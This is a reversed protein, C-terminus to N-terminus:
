ELSPRFTRSRSSRCFREPDTLESVEGSVQMDLARFLLMPSRLIQMAQRVNSQCTGYAPKYDRSWLTVGCVGSNAGCIGFRLVDALALHAKWNGPNLEIAKALDVVQDRTSRDSTLLGRNYYALDLTPKLSISKNYLRLVQAEENDFGLSQYIRRFEARYDSRSVQFGQDELVVGLANYAEALGPKLRIARALDLAVDRSLAQAADRVRHLREGNPLTCQLGAVLSRYDRNDFGSAVNPRSVYHANTCAELHHWRALARYLHLEPSPGLKMAQDALAIVAQEQGPKDLLSQIQALYDDLTRSTGTALAVTRGQRFAVYFDIPVGQNIGTKVIRDLSSAVPDLEGRGHIGILEARENLVPGGSMGVETNNSYLLQYGQDIGVDANAVVSGGNAIWRQSGNNPFGGVTVPQGRRLQRVDGIAAIRHDASDLFSLVALDVAGLRQISGPEIPHQRGDATSITLEEGPRQGSVVHWATLVTYREGRREVLVGSGRTAGEILVSISRAATGSAAVSGSAAMTAPDLTPRPPLRRITERVAAAAAGVDLGLLLAAALASLRRSM